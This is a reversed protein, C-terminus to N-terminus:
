ETLACLVKNWTIDMSIIKELAASGMKKAVGRDMYLWDMAQALELPDPRAIIGNVGNEVFELPGGSDACTIVPKGRHFAEVTVYGYDEDYPIFLVGLCNEYLYNKKRESVYGLFSVQGKMGHDEIYREFFARSTADEWAGALLLKVRTNAKLAAQLALFQRKTPNIRSPYFIYDGYEGSISGTSNPPPYLHPAFVGNNRQLRKSVNKSITYIRQAERFAQNDSEFIFRKTDAGEPHGKLSSFRTNWLDYAQRHQHLIWLRKVPHNICYAPFKTSIVVDVMNKDISLLQCARIMDTLSQPPHAAFPISIDEVKHGAQLLHYKLNEVLIEAGGRIFPSKVTAICIKV